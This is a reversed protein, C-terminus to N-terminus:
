FSKRLFVRSGRTSERWQLGELNCFVPAELSFRDILVPHCAFVLHSGGNGRKGGKILCFLYPPGGDLRFRRSTLSRILGFAVSAEGGPADVVSLVDDFDPSVVIQLAGNWQMFKYSFPQCRDIVQRIAKRLRPENVEGELHFVACLNGIRESTEFMRLQTETPRYTQFDM